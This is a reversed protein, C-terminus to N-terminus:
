SARRAKMWALLTAKTTEATLGFEMELYQAAGFMNTVGSVRLQDLYELHESEADHFIFLGARHDHTAVTASTESDTRDPLRQDSRPTHLEPGAGQADRQTTSM